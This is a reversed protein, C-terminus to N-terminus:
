HRGSVCDRTEIYEIDMVRVERGKEREMGRGKGRARAEQAERYRGTSGDEGQARTRFFVLVVWRHWGLEGDWLLREATM